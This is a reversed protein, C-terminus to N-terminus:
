NNYKKGIPRQSIFLLVRKCVSHPTVVQFCFHSSKRYGKCNKPELLPNPKSLVQFAQQNPREIILQLLVNVMPRSCNNIVAHVTYAQYFLSPCSEFSGDAHWSTYWELINLNAVTTFGHLRYCDESVLDHPM